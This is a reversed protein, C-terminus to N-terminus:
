FRRAKRRRRRRRTTDVHIHHQFTKRLTQLRVNTKMQITLQQLITWRKFTQNVKLHNLFFLDNEKRSALSPQRRVNEIFNLVVCAGGPSIMVCRPSIRVENYKMERPEISIKFSSLTTAIRLVYIERERQKPFFRSINPTFIKELLYLHYERRFDRAICHVLFILM